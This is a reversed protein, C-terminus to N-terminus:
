DMKIFYINIVGKKTNGANSIDVLLPGLNMIGGYNGNDLFRTMESTQFSRNALVGDEATTIDDGSWMGGDGSIDRTTTTVTFTGRPGEISSVLKNAISIDYNATPQFAPVAPTGSPDTEVADIWGNVKMTEYGTFAGADSTTWSLRLVCDDGTCDLKQYMTSDVALAPAAFLLLVIFGILIRSLKKM